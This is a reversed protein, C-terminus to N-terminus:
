KCNETDRRTTYSIILDVVPAPDDLGHPHHGVDPKHFVKMTGGLAKYREEIVATNEAVPVVDDIDGVVHILPIGAKALPELLDIPNERYALAEALDKFGYLRQLSEWDSASGKGQGLGAPWSKFDCVPADGYLCIVREPHRAAFHYAYLGGRSVGVLTGKRNLGKTVLHDYFADLHAQAPPSGFTNGVSMHVYYFGNQVLPVVGTRTDFATPFEMGWVWHNGPRPKRPVAVWCPCGDVTFHHRTFGQWLDTKTPQWDISIGFAQDTFALYCEWDYTVIGHEFPRRHYALDSGIAPQMEDPWDDAPLGSAGLFLWVPEAAKMSLFEGYPDFWRGPFSSVYLKRPACAALLLHQDFPMEAERDSYQRFNNCFWHPFNQNQLAVNEGYDRKALPVGGGGTQNPIVAAFRQDKAGALLATKALRSCGIVAVRKADIASDQELMDMGRMLAWAWAAIATTNNGADQAQPAFITHVGNTYLVPDDPAIDAYCATALAYGRTILTEFPWTQSEGPMNSMGRSKESARNNEIFHKKDNRLWGETVPIAPDPDIEHNGYYNLGIYAPVPNPAGKPMFLIWDIKPGTNDNRFWMRLLKRTARGDLIERSSLLELRMVAPPPPIVGFMQDEFLTLIEQRRKPWAEQATLKTNNTFCLPDPLTYPAIKAEDYNAPRAYLMAPAALLVLITTQRILKKLKM